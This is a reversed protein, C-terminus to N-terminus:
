TIYCESDDDSIYVYATDRDAEFLVAADSSVAQITFYEQREVRQDNQITIFLSITSDNGPSISLTELIADYDGSQALATEDSTKVSFIVDRELKGSLTVKVELQEISENVTFNTKEMALLVKDNDIIKLTLHDSTLSVAEDKSILWLEFTEMNEVLDDDVVTVNICKRAGDNHSYSTLYSIKNYDAPAQATVDSSSIMLNVSRALVGREIVMCIEQHTMDEQIM